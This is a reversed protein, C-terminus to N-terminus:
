EEPQSLFADLGQKLRSRGLKERSQEHARDRKSSAAGRGTGCFAGKVLLSCNAAVAHVKSWSAAPTSGAPVVVNLPLQATRASDPAGLAGFARQWVAVASYGAMWSVASIGVVTM